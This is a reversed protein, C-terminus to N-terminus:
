DLTTLKSFRMMNREAAKRLYEVVKNVEDRKIEEVRVGRSCGKRPHLVWLVLGLKAKSETYVVQEGVCNDCSGWVGLSKAREKILIWRNIADHGISNKNWGNVEDATPLKPKSTKVWKRKDDEVVVKRWGDKEDYSYLGDMFSSLRGEKVLVEVEADTINDSWNQEVLENSYSSHRYFNDSIIKTKPNLGTGGCCDCEVNARILEFYFNVVENFQNLGFDFSDWNKVICRSDWSTGDKWMYDEDPGWCVYDPNMKLMDVQWQEANLKRLEEIEYDEVPYTRM